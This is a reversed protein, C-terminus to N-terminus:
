HRSPTCVDTGKIKEAVAKTIMGRDGVFIIEKLGYHSDNLDKIGFLGLPTVTQTAVASQQARLCSTHAAEPACGRLVRCFRRSLVDPWHWIQRLIILSIVMSNM